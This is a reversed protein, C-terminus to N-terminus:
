KINEPRSEEDAVYCVALRLIEEDPENPYAKRLERKYKNIRRDIENAHKVDRTNIHPIDSSLISM